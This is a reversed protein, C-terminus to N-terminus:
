DHVPQAVHKVDMIAKSWRERTASCAAEKYFLRKPSFASRNQTHLTFRNYNPTRGTLRFNEGLEGLLNTESKDGQKVIIWCRLARERADRQKVASFSELFPSCLSRLTVQM